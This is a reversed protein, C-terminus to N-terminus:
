PHKRFLNSKKLYKTSQTLNNYNLSKNFCNLLIFLKLLSFFDSPSNNFPTATLLIVKRNNCITSLLEYDATDQNRFYHAEDIIVVDMNTQDISNAIKELQGRSHVEWNHM